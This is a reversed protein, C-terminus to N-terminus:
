HSPVRANLREGRVQMLLKGLRNDGGLTTVGWFRDGWANWEVLEADGTDILSQSLPPWEFKRRLLDLMVQEKVSEWDARLEVDRGLRKAQGPTIRLFERSGSANACKAAQYANEVSPYIYWTGRVRVPHFNSLWRYPGYFGKVVNDIGLDSM